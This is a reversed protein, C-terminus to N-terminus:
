DCANPTLLEQWTALPIATNNRRGAGVMVAALALGGNEAVFVPGGSSAPHTDCDTLWVPAPRDPQLLRCGIHAQLQFRRDAPYAAHILAEGPERPRADAVPSPKVAIDADLTIAAVDHFMASIPVGRGSKQPVYAHGTLFRVCKAKAHAEYKGGRVGALFHIHRLPHTKGTAEHMLCHAATIVLNPRVLTGTCQGLTRYGGVNVQGVADWPTGAATVPKRDDSGIVGPQAAGAATAAM